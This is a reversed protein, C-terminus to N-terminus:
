TLKAAGPAPTYATAGLMRKAPPPALLGMSTLPVSALSPTSLTGAMLSVKMEAGLTVRM